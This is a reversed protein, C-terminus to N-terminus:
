DKDELQKRLKTLSSVMVDIAEVTPFEVMMGVKSLIDAYDFETVVDGTKLDSEPDYGIFLAGNGSELVAGSFFAKGDGTAIGVVPRTGGEMMYFGESKEQEAM